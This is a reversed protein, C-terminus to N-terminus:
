DSIVKTIRFDSWDDYYYNGTGVIYTTGATLEVNNGLSKGTEDYFNVESNNTSYQATESPTFKYAMYRKNYFGEAYTEDLDYYIDEKAVYTTDKAASYKRTNVEPKTEEVVVENVTAQVPANVVAFTATLKTKSTKVTETVTGGDFWTYSGNEDSSTTNEKECEITYTGPKVYISSGSGMYEQNYKWSCSALVNGLMGEPKNILTGPVLSVKYLPLTIDFGSKTMNLPQNYLYNIAKASDATTSEDDYWGDNYSARIDYVGSAITASYQGKDDTYVSYSRTYRDARNKNTYSIRANQIANGSADKVIGAITVGQAANIVVPVDCFLASNNQDTARVTVTYTGAVKVPVRVEVSANSSDSVTAGTAADNVISYSYQGSGGEFYVTPYSTSEGTAPALMYVPAAGGAIQTKSGIVFIISKTMTNGYEDTATMTATTTGATTPTGKVIASGNKVEYTLGAPLGTMTYTAYGYEWFSFSEREYTGVNWTSVQESTYAAITDAYKKELSKVAGSLVPISIKVYSNKGISNSDNLIVTYNKNDATTMNDIAIKRNWAGDVNDKNFIEIQGATLPLANDLSFVITQPNQIDMAVLNVTFNVTIKCTAKKGSGDTAKATITTAGPAKATVLGKASVDAVSKKSSSWEIMKSAKKPTVSAKLQVTEGVSLAKKATKITVKKAAVKNVVVNITAKKNKAKASTVTIKTKGAKVGKVVGKSSVSAVKPNASKFKVKKNAKKDPTVKVDATLKVKKGKAVYLTKGSPATVSVKKVKVKAASAEPASVAAMGFTMALSLVAAMAINGFKRM